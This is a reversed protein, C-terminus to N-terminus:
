IASGAVMVFIELLLNIHIRTWWASAMNWSVFPPAVEACELTQMLVIDCFQDSGFILNRKFNFVFLVFLAINLSVFFRFDSLINLFIYLEIFM